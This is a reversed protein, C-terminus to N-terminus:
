RSGFNQSRRGPIRRKLTAIRHLSKRIEDASLAGSALSDVISSNVYQGTDDSIQHAILVIDIGTKIAATIVAALSDESPVHM